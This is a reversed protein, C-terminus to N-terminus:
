IHYGEGLFVDEEINNGVLFDKVSLRKGGSFQLEQIVLMDKSTGVFVEEKTVKIVKGPNISKDTKEVRSKWIKMVKGEYSTFASPWPNTGRILNKIEIATKNWDINGLEKNMIPAYTAKEEDQKQREVEGKEIQNITKILLEAGMVSLRDHLEGTTEDEGIALEEKLIMDGTDMGVDMYMTTNGTVKEGKIIAWNIPAAGRYNPLLSAHVNVCGFPPIDLIEKSLLHGYAVVIIIEPNMSKILEVTETNKVKTPQYVPIDKELALEKVPPMNMKNGRGKPKDPQTFVAIIEHKEEILKELCPVAFDPTGMFIIRM